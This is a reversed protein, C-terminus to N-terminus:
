CINGMHDEEFEEWFHQRFIGGFSRWINKRKFLVRLFIKLIGLFLKKIIIRAASICMSM